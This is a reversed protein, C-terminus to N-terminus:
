KRDVDKLQQKYKKKAKYAEGFLGGALYDMASELWAQAKKPDKPKDM